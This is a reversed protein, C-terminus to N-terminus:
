DSTSTSLRLAGGVGAGSVDAASFRVQKYPGVDFAMPMRLRDGTTVLPASRLESPYFTRSGFLLPSGSIPIVQPTILADLVGIPVFDEIPTDRAEPILSLVAGDEGATYDIWLTLIHVGEVDILQGVVYDTVSLAPAELVVDRNTPFPPNKHHPAEDDGKVEVAVGQRDYASPTGGADSDKRLLAIEADAQNQGQTTM